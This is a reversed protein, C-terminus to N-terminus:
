FFKKCTNVGVYGKKPRSEFPSDRSRSGISFLVEVQRCCVIRFTDELLLISKVAIVCGQIGSPPLKYAYGPRFSSEFPSDRSRSGFSFLVEVQRCCVIRFTDELLLISKVAIVCGQIGSPATKIYM